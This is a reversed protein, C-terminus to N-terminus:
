QLHARLNLAGGLGLGDEREGERREGREAQHSPILRSCESVAGAGHKRGAAM